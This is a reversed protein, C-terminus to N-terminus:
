KPCSVLVALDTAQALNKWVRYQIKEKVLGVQRDPGTAAFFNTATFKPDPEQILVWTRDVALVQYVPASTKSEVQVCAGPQIFSPLDSTQSTAGAHPSVLVIMALAVGVLISMADRANM